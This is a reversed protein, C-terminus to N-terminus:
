RKEKKCDNVVMRCIGKPLKRSVCMLFVCMGIYLLCHSIGGPLHSNRTVLAASHLGMTVTACRMVLVVSFHRTRNVCIFIQIHFHIHQRTHSIQMYRSSTFSTFHVPVPELTSSQAALRPLPPRQAPHGRQRLWQQVRGRSGAM